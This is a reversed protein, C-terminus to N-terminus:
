KLFGMYFIFTKKCSTTSSVRKKVVLQVVWIANGQKTTEVVYFAQGILVTEYYALAVYTYDNSAMNRKYYSPKLVIQKGRKKSDPHQTSYKGYNESFLEAVDQLEQETLSSATKTFYHFDQNHVKHSFNM